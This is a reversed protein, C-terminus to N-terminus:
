REGAACRPWSANSRRPSPATCSTSATGPARRRSRRPSAGSPSWPTAGTRHACSRAGGRARQARTSSSRIGEPVTGGHDACLEVARQVMPDLPHDASEFGVVLLASGDTVGASGAAEAPDLLRLNAPWLGAQIVARVAAAGHGVTPLHVSATAKFTPRDQLRLWAETIVGLIGESGLLLRDPSPGAGSGPLRRSELVGSPTVARISEVFDDIHTHNTAYHGGSRTAIWGGVTSFEFSQPFHRLTLGHPRLQDELAPGLTGGQVRAARSIRDIEVVRDLAGLDVSVVGDYRDGVDCAVGGVVSSGGGYPVAAIGANACWDLLAEVEHESRPRAVLDPPHPLVGHFGRVTDVFSKGYTHGARDETDTACLADLSDPPAVRPSRLDLDAVTPPRRQEIHGFGPREALSRGIKAVQDPAIAEDAWGWGWWSRRRVGTM